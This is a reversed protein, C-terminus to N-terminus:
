THAPPAFCAPKVAAILPALSGTLGPGVHDVVHAFPFLLPVCPGLPAQSTFM